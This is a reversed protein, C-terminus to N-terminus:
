VLKHCRYRKTFGDILNNKHEFVRRVLNNTIGIYLVTNRKNSMMYVFYKKAM